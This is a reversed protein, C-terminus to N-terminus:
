HRGNRGDFSRWDLKRWEFHWRDLNRWEFHRRDLEWRRWKCGHREDVRWWLCVPVFLASSFHTADGRRLESNRPQRRM